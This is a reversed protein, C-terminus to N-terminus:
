GNYLQFYKELYKSIEIFFMNHYKAYKSIEHNKLIFHCKFFVYGMKLYENVEDLKVNIVKSNVDNPNIM